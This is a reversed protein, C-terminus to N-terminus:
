NDRDVWAIRSVVVGNPDRAEAQGAVVLGMWSLLEAVPFARLWPRRSSGYSCLILRGGPEVLDELAREVQDAQRWEPVYETSTRVYTFPHATEWTMVNGTHIRDRWQPLRSRALDALGASLDLGYPEIHHDRAACWRVM